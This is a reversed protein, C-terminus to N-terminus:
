GITTGFIVFQIHYDKTATLAGHSKLTFTAGGAASIYFKSMEDNYATNERGSIVVYSEGDFSTPYTATFIDGGATPATGTKFKIRFGNVGGSISTLTPGTGAGSGFAINGAAWVNAHNRFQHAQTIGAVDLPHAPSDKNIGVRAAAESRIIVGSNAVSGPATSKPTIKFKDSDSNDVGFTWNNGAGNVIMEIFPDAAAGGAVQLLFKTGAGALDRTNVMRSTYVNQVNASGSLLTSNVVGGATTDNHAFRADLSAGNGVLLEQTGNLWRFNASSNIANPGTFYPVRDALGTIGLITYVNAVTLEEVNGAGASIRGLFRSTASVQQIKAYTVANNAIKATTVNADAIKATTVNADAIKATTVANNAIKATTVNLDAIKATTVNADAIKATTVANNAIKATTVNSDVINDTGVLGFELVGFDNRRLVQHNATSAIDAV